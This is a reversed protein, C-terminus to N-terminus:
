FPVDDEFSEDFGNSAPEPQTQPNRQASQTDGSGVFEMQFGVIETTYRDVGQKDQWKRTKIKGEIAIKSGKKLYKSALEAKKDYLVVRHWETDEKLKGDKGYYKESTAISLNAVAKGDATHRIEPNQGLNGIIIVKNM